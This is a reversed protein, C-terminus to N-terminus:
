LSQFTRSALFYQPVSCIDCALFPQMMSRAASHQAAAVLERRAQQRGAGSQHSSCRVLHPWAPRACRKWQHCLSRWPSWLSGLEHWCSRLMPLSHRGASVAKRMMATSMRRCVMNSGQPGHLAQLIELKKLCNGLVVGPPSRTACPTSHNLLQQRPHQCPLAPGEAATNQKRKIDLLM